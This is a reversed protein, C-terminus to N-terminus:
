APQNRAVRQPAAAGDTAYLGWALADEFAAIGSTKEVVRTMPDRRIMAPLSATVSATWYIVPLATLRHRVALYLPASLENGLRWDLVILSPVGTRLARLLPAATRFLRPAIDAATCLELVLEAPGTEDELIWIEDNVHRPRVSDM